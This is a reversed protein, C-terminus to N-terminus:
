FRRGTAGPSFEGIARFSAGDQAGGRIGDGRSTVRAGSILEPCFSHDTGRIPTPSLVPLPQTMNGDDCSHGRYTQEHPPRNKSWTSGDASDPPLSIHVQHRVTYYVRTKRNLHSHYQWRVSIVTKSLINTSQSIRSHPGWRPSRRKSLLSQRGNGGCLWSVSTECDTALTRQPHHADLVPPVGATRSEQCRLQGNLVSQQVRSACGCGPCLLVDSSSLRDNNRPICTARASRLHPAFYSKICVNLPDPRRVCRLYM